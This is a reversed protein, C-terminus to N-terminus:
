PLRVVYIGLNFSTRLTLRSPRLLRPKGQKNYTPSAVGGINRPDTRKRVWQIYQLRSELLTFSFATKNTVTFAIELRMNAVM